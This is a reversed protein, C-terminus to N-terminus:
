KFRVGVGILARQRSTHDSYQSFKYEGNVYFNDTLSYEVGGGVQYGDTNFHDYYGGVGTARNGGGAAAPIASGTFSKRQENNVFGGKGYVLLQPTVLVGARVAVGYEEFSKQCLTGSGNLGAAVCNEGRARWFTGEAGVVFRDGLTGDFGVLGGYGLKDDHKGQSQFRDGGVQGEVRIGRFSTGNSGVTTDVTTDQAYATGATSAALLAALIISKRM